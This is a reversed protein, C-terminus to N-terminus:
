ILHLAYTDPAVAPDHPLHLHAHLSHAPLVSLSDDADVIAALEPAALHAGSVAPTRRDSRLTAVIRSTPALITLTRAGSDPDIRYHAAAADPFQDRLRAAAYLVCADYHAKQTVVSVRALEDRRTRAENPTARVEIAITM